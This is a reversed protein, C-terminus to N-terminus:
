MQPAEVRPRKAGLLQAAVDLQDYHEHFEVIKGAADFRVFATWTQTFSAGTPLTGSSSLTAALWAGHGVARVLRLRYDPFVEVLDEIASRMAASGVLPVALEPATRVCGDAHLAQWRVFDHANSAAIRAELAAVHAPDDVDITPAATGGDVNGRARVAGAVFVGVVVVFSVVFSLLLWRAKNMLM